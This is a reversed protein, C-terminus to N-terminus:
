PRSDPLSHLRELWDVADGQQRRLAQAILHSFALGAHMMTYIAAPHECRVASQGDKFGLVGCYSLGKALASELAKDMEADSAPLPVLAFEEGRGMVAACIGGDATNWVLQEHEDLRNM